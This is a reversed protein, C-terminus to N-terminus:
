WVRYSFVWQEPSCDDDHRGHKCEGEKLNLVYLLAIAALDFAADRWAYPRKLILAFALARILCCTAVDELWLRIPEIPM